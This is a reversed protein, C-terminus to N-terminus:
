GVLTIVVNSVASGYSNTVRCRYWRGNQLTGASWSYTASTSSGNTWTAGGDNSYQWRYTYDDSTPTVSLLITEGVDYHSKSAEATIIPIPAVEYLTLQIPVPVTPTAGVAVLTLTGNINEVYFAKVGDTIMQSITEAPADVDAKTYATCTYYIDASTLEFSYPGSGTWGSSPVLIDRIFGKAQKTEATDYLLKASPVQSDTSSSSASTVISSGPVAANALDYATKVASPTAALDTATSNVASSLKTVGYYTTSAHGGKVITFVSGTYVMDVANNASWENLAVSTSGYRKINKASLSNIKLQPQGDYGQANTFYIRVHLGTFLETIGSITVEKVQTDAATDCVGYYVIGTRATADKITHEVGDTGIFKSFEAM